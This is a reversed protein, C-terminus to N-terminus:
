KLVCHDITLETHYSPSTRKSWQPLDSDVRLGTEYDTHVPDSCSSAGSQTGSDTRYCKLVKDRNEAACGHCKSGEYHAGSPTSLERHSYNSYRTEIKPRQSTACKQVSTLKTKPTFSCCSHSQIKGITKKLLRKLFKVHEVEKPRHTLQFTM